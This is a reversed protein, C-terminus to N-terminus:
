DDYKVETYNGSDVLAKLEAESVALITKALEKFDREDSADINGLESKAFGYVFFSLAGKRFLIISRYGGSKGENARAIRQKIVGGGFDADIISKEANRIAECLKADTIREKRAFKAFWKSKFIRM